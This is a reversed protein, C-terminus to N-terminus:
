SKWKDSDKQQLIQYEVTWPLPSPLFMVPPGIWESSIFMMSPAKFNLYSWTYGLTHRVKCNNIHVYVSAFFNTPLCNYQCIIVSIIHHIQGSLFAMLFIFQLMSTHCSQFFFFLFFLKVQLCLLEIIRM